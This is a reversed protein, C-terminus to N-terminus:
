NSMRNCHFATWRLMDNKNNNAWKLENVCEAVLIPITGELGEKRLQELVDMIAEKYDM